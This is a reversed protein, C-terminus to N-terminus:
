KKPHKWKKSERKLNWFRIKPDFHRWVPEILHAVAFTDVGLALSSEHINVGVTLALIGIAIPVITSFFVDLHNSMMKERFKNLDKEEMVDKFHPFLTNLEIQHRIYYSALYSASGIGISELQSM